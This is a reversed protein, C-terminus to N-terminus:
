ILFNFTSFDLAKSIKLLWIEIIKIFFDGYKLLHLLFTHSWVRKSKHPTNFAHALM